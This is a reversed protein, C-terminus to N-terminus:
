ASFSLTYQRESTIAPIPSDHLIQESRVLNLVRKQVSPDAKYYAVAQLLDMADVGAADGPRKSAAMRSLM